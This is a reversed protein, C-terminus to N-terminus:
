LICRGMLQSSMTSVKKRPKSSMKISATTASGTAETMAQLVVDEDVLTEEEGTVPDTRVTIAEQLRGSTRLRDIVRSKLADVADNTGAGPLLEALKRHASGIPQGGGVLDVVDEDFLTFVLRASKPEQLYLAVPWRKDPSM